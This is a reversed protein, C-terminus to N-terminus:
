RLPDATHDHQYADDAHNILALLIQSSEIEVTRRLIEYALVESDDGGM